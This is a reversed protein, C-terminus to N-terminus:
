LILRKRMTAIDAVLMQALETPPNQSLIQEFILIARRFDGSFKAKFGEEILQEITAPMAAEVTERAAPPTQEPVVAAITGQAKIAQEIKRQESTLEAAAPPEQVVPEALVAPPEQVVPEPEALMAPPKQAVPDALVAAATEPVEIALSDAAVPVTEQNLEVVAPITLAAFAIVLTYLLVIQWLHMVTLLYPFFVALIFSVLTTMVLLKFQQLSHRTLLYATLLMVILIFFLMQQYHYM